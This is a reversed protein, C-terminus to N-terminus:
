FSGIRIRHSEHRVGITLSGMRAVSGRGLRHLALSITAL